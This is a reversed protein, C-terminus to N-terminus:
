FLGTQELRYWPPTQHVGVRAQPVASSYVQENAVPSWPKRGAGMPSRLVFGFIMRAEATGETSVLGLIGREEHVAVVHSRAEEMRTKLADLPGHVSLRAILWSWEM